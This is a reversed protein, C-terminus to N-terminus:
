NFSSWLKLRRQRKMGRLSRNRLGSSQAPSWEWTINIRKNKREVAKEEKDEDVTNFCKLNQSKANDMQDQLESKNGCGSLGRLNQEHRPWLVSGVKHSNSSKTLETDEKDRSANTGENKHGVESEDYFQRDEQVVADFFPGIQGNSDYAEYFKEEYGQYKECEKEGTKWGWWLTSKFGFCTSNLATYLFEHTKESKSVEQAMNKKQANPLALRCIKSGFILLFM